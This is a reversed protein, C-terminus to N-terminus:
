YCEERAVNEAELKQSVIKRRYFTRRKKDFVNGLLCKNAFSILHFHYIIQTIQMPM